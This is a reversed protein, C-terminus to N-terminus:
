AVEALTTFDAGLEIGLELAADAFYNKLARLAFDRGAILPRQRARSRRAYFEDLEGQPLEQGAQQRALLSRYLAQFREDLSRAEPDADVRAQAARYAQAVDSEGLRRGLTEAAERLADPLDM